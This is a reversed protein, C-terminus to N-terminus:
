SEGPKAPAASRAEAAPPSGAAELADVANEAADARAREGALSELTAARQEAPTGEPAAKPVDALAPYPGDSPAPAAEAFWRGPKMWDPSSSCAALALPVVLLAFRLPRFPLGPM